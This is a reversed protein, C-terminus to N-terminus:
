VRSGVPEVLVPDASDLYILDDDSGSKDSLYAMASKKKNISAAQLKELAGDPVERFELIGLSKARDILAQGIATRVLVQNWQKSEDWGEVLRASGVSVDAFEATMDVCGRCAPRIAPGIEDLSVITVGETTTVELCHYRSPPIDLKKITNGDLKPALARRLETLSLAWGCFLGIVLALKDIGSTNATFPKARMKALALAQCPTAVVGIKEPGNQALRNFAAVTPSVVFQSGARSIVEDPNTVAMGQPLLPEVTGALVASDILGESLALKMLASVTGGHQAAKRIAPDSARAIYLGKVAGLAPTLNAPNFLAKRLEPLDASTRPCFAYCRGEAKDCADLFVIRDKFNVNYPCLNVCAGCNTCLDMDQVLAKLKQQGGTRDFAVM